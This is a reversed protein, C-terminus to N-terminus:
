TKMGRQRLRMMRSRTGIRSPEGSSPPVAIEFLGRYVGLVHARNGADIGGDALPLTIVVGFSMASRRRNQTEFGSM